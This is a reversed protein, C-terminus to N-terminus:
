TSSRTTNDPQISLNQVAALWLQAVARAAAENYVVQDAYIDTNHFLRLSADDTWECRWEWCDWFVLAKSGVQM